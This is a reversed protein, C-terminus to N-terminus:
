GKYEKIPLIHLLISFLSKSVTEIGLLLYSFKSIAWGNFLLLLGGTRAVTASFESCFQPHPPSIM